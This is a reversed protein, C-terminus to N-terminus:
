FVGGRGVLRALRGGLHLPVLQMRFCFFSSVLLDSSLRLPQLFWASELSPDVSNEVQVAGVLIVARNANPIVASLFRRQEAAYGHWDDFNWNVRYRGLALLGRAEDVPVDRGDVGVGVGV